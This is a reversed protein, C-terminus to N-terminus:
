AKENGFLIRLKRWFSIGKLNVNLPERKELEKYYKSIYFTMAFEVENGHGEDAGHIIAPNRIMNVLSLDSETKLMGEVVKAAQEALLSEIFGKETKSYTDKKEVRIRAVVGRTNSM